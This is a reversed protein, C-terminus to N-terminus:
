TDAHYTEELAAFRSKEKRFEILMKQLVLASRYDKKYEDMILGQINPFHPLGEDGQLAYLEQYLTPNGNVYDFFCNREEESEFVIIAKMFISYSFEDASEKQHFFELLRSRLDNCVFFAVASAGIHNLEYARCPAVVFIRGGDLTLGLFQKIATQYYKLTIIWWRLSNNMQGFSYYEYGNRHEDEECAITFEPARKYYYAMDRDDISDWDSPDSLHYCFRELPTEDLFFRKRWLYEIHNIDATKDVPTNTDMVRTYIHNARIGKYQDILFFPTNHSNDIVIVDIQGRRLVIQEVHVIPRIGGAFKKDKLFDVINQTNRRNPDNQTNVISCDMEEDVGIIIYADRNHLNNAMCIIDHLLDGNNEYWQKKFDWYGGEQRLFILKLIEEEFIKESGTRRM